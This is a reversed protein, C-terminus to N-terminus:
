TCASRMENCKAKNCKVSIATKKKCFRLDTAVRCSALRNTVNKWFCKSVEHRQTVKQYNKYYKWSKM